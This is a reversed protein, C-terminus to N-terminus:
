AGRMYRMWIGGAFIPTIMPGPPLITREIMSSVLHVTSTWSSPETKTPELLSSFPRLRAMAIM